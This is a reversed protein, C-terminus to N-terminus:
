EKPPKATSQSGEFKALRERLQQLERALEKRETEADRLQKELAADKERLAHLAGLANQIEKRDREGAALQQEFGSLRNGAVSVAANLNQLEQMRNWLSTTRNSLEDKKVFDAAQERMRTQDNRLEHVNGSISQYAQIVVLATISLITGGFVRWFVSIKEDPKGADAAKPRLTEAAFSISAERQGYDLEDDPRDANRKVLLHSAERRSM